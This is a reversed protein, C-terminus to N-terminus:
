KGKVARKVANMIRKTHAKSFTVCGVNLQGRLINAKYSNPAGTNIEVSPESILRRLRALPLMDIVDVTTPKKISTSLRYLRTKSLAFDDAWWGKGNGKFFVKGKSTMRPM